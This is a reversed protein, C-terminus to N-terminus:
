EKQHSQAGEETLQLPRPPPPLQQGNMFLHQERHRHKSELLAGVMIQQQQVGAMQQLVQNNFLLSPSLTPPPTPIPVSLPFLHSLAKASFITKTICKNGKWCMQFM